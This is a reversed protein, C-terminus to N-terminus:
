MDSNQLAAVTRTVLNSVRVQRDRGREGVSKGVRQRQTHLDRKMERERDWEGRGGGEREGVCPREGM